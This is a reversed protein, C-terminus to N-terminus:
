EEETKGNEPEEKQPATSLKDGGEIKPYGILARGENPTLVRHKVASNAIVTSSALDGKILETVDFKVMLKKDELLSLSLKSQINKTIPAITDRYFGTQRQSLNNYKSGDSIELMHAPVKFVACIRSMTQQKLAQTDGNLPTLLSTETFTAGGGIVNVSGRPKDKWSKAFAAATDADIDDPFTVVGSSSNSNLFTETLLKDISNDIAVLSACQKVKSLGDISGGIFDRIHIIQEAKYTAGGTGNYRYSRKGTASLVPTMNEPELPVLQVIKGAKTMVKLLYANGHTLLDQVVQFKLEFDSMGDNPHDLLKNIAHQAPTFNETGKAVVAWPLQAVASAVISVCTFVTANQLAVEPTIAVGEVRTIAGNNFVFANSPSSPNIQTNPKPNLWALWGSYAM